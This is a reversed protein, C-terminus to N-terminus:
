PPTTPRASTRWCGRPAPRRSRRAHLARGQDGGAVRGPPGATSRGRPPSRDRGGPRAGGSSRRALLGARPRRPSRDSRSLGADTGRVLDTRRDLRGPTRHRHPRDADHYYDRKGLIPLPSQSRIAMTKPLPGVARRARPLMGRGSAPRQGPGARSRSEPRVVDDRFVNAMDRAHAMPEVNTTDVEGLLDMYGLIDGLQVTMRQLEEESLLLRGLLAIKEVEARSLSM